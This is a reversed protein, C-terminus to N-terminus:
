MVRWVFLYCVCVISEDDSWSVGAIGERLKISRGVSSWRCM